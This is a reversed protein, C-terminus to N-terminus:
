LPTRGQYKLRRKVSWDCKLHINNVSNEPLGGHSTISIMIIRASSSHVEFGVLLCDRSEGVITGLVGSVYGMIIPASLINRLINNYNNDFPMFVYNIIM